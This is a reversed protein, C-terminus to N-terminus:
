KGTNKIFCRCTFTNAISYWVVRINNDRMILYSGVRHMLQPPDTSLPVSGTIEHLALILSVPMDGYLLQM